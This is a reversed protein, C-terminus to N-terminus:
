RPIWKVLDSSEPHVYLATTTQSSHGLWRQIVAIPAGQRMLRTAFGHRLLHPRLKRLGADRGIRRVLRRLACYQTHSNGAVSLIQGVTKWEKRGGRTPSELIAELEARVHECPLRAEYKGKRDFVLEGVDIARVVERRRLQLLEQARLGLRLPMLAIARFGQSLEAHGRALEEYRTLETENPVPLDRRRKRGPPHPVMVKAEDPSFGKAKLAARLVVRRSHSWGSVLELNVAGRATLARGLVAEYEKITRESLGTASM